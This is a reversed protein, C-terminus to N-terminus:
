KEAWLKSMELGSVDLYISERNEKQESMQLAQLMEGSMGGKGASLNEPCLTQRALPVLQLDLSFVAFCWPLFGDREWMPLKPTWRRGGLPWTGM